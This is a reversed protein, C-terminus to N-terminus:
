AGVAAGQLEAPLRGQAVLESLSGAQGRIPIGRQGAALTVAARREQEGVLWLTAGLQWGAELDSLSDGVLQARAFDIWPLDRQAQLFLGLAPKRCDCSEREHPCIYIGALPAGAVALREAM